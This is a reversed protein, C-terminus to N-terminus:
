KNGKPNLIQHVRQKSIGLKEAIVTQPVGADRMRLIRARRKEARAIFQAYAETKM